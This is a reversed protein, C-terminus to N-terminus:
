CKCKLVSYSMYGFHVLKNRKKRTFLMFIAFLYCKKSQDISFGFLVCFLVPLFKYCNHITWTNEQLNEQTKGFHASFFQVNMRIGRVIFATVSIECLQQGRMKNERARVSLHMCLSFSMTFLLRLLLLLLLLLKKESNSHFLFKTNYYNGKTQIATSTSVNSTLNNSPGLRRKCWVYKNPSNCKKRANRKHIHTHTNAYMHIHIDIKNEM